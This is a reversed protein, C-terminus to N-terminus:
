NESDNLFDYLSDLEELLKKIQDSEIEDIYERIKEFTSDNLNSEM